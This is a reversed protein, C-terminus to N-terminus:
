DELTDTNILHELHASIGLLMLTFKHSNINKEKTEDLILETLGVLTSFGREKSVLEQAEDKMEPTFM